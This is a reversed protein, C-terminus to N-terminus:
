TRTAALITPHGDDTFGIITIDARKRVKPVVAAKMPRGNTKRSGGNAASTFGQLCSNVDNFGYQEPLRSLEQPLENAATREPLAFKEHVAALEKIPYTGMTDASMM